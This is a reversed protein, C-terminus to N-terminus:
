DGWWGHALEPDGPGAHPAGIAILEAGDPGAEFGRMTDRDEVEDKLNLKTYGAV